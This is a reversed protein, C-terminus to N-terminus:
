VTPRLLGAAVLGALGLDMDTLRGSLIHAVYQDRPLTIPEVFEEADPTPDAVKRCDRALAAYRVHTAYSALYTTAVVQLSGAEYGTEELLERAAGAVVEEGDTVLGGPLEALVTGPGPRYQRVLLGQGDETLAVVAVTRPGVLIDWDSERGDPQVYTRCRVKLYGASRPRESKLTWVLPNPEAATVNPM